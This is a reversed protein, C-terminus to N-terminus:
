HNQNGELCKVLERLDQPLDSKFSLFQSKQPHIFGLLSAHLAQRQLDKIQSRTKDSFVRTRAKSLNSGYTRDGLIAHGISAMHVRIQHTRGTTLRCEVMSVANSYVAQVAYRTHAPKGGQNLVAMKKRDHRSRGVNGMIEGTKPHPVGWVIASYAREISHEKFQVALGTHTQDNKAVVVLGSTDKDIRHVIGPRRVGGIGSLSGECHALLANVLTGSMNGPAPHVVLGAPKDIVILDDDEYVVDLAMKEPVPDADMIEPIVLRFSEGQKVRYSPDVITENEASLHGLEILSKIRSRSFGTSSSTLFRDLRQGHSEIPVYAEVFYAPSSKPASM